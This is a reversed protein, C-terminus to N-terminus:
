AARMYARIASELHGNYTDISAISIHEDVAHAQELSGPGYTVVQNMGFHGFLRADCPSPFTGFSISDDPRTSELAASLEGQPSHQGDFHFDSFEVEIKPATEALTDAISRQLTRVPTTVPYLITAESVIAAMPTAADAGGKIIGFTHRLGQAEPNVNRAAADLTEEFGEITELMDYLVNDRLAAGAMHRANGQARLIMHLFGPSDLAIVGDSPEAILCSTERGNELLGNRSLEHLSALTGNGGIEEDAVATFIIQGSWSDRDAALRSAVYLQSTLGGLMDSAGRGWVKGNAVEGGNWAHSWRDEDTVPEIDYHGNLILTRGPQNARLVGLVNTKPRDIDEAYQEGFTDVPIYNPDHAIDRATYSQLGVEDWGFLELQNAIREACARQSSISEYLPGTQVLDSLFAVQAELSEAAPNHRM